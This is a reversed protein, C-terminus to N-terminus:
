RLPNTPPFFFDELPSCNLESKKSSTGDRVIPSEDDRENMELFPAIRPSLSQEKDFVTMEKSKRGSSIDRAAGM